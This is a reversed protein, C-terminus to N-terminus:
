LTRYGAWKKGEFIAFQREAGMSIENQRGKVEESDPLGIPTNQALHVCMSKPKLPILMKEM